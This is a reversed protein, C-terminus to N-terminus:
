REKTPDTAGLPARAVLSHGKTARQHRQTTWIHGKNKYRYLPLNVDGSYNTEELSM